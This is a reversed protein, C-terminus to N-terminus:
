RKVAARAEVTIEEVVELLVAAAPMLRTFDAPARKGTCNAVLEWALQVHPANEPDRAHLTLNNMLTKYAAYRQALLASLEGASPCQTENPNDAVYVLWLTASEDALREVDQGPHRALELLAM